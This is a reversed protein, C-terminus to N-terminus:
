YGANWVSNFNVTETKTEPNFGLLRVGQENLSKYNGILKQVQDEKLQIKM